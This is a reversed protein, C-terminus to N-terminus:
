DRLEDLNEPLEFLIQEGGNIVLCPLGVRGAAKIEAFEPRTDRLKLFQKLPLMGSTIDQELYKIEAKSLVEKM